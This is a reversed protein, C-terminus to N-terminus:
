SREHSEEEKWHERIFGRARYLRSEITRVSVGEESAIQDYTKEKLYFETVIHRHAPPLSSIRTHLTLKSERKILMDLPEDEDAIKAQLWDESNWEDERRREKRRKADIAKHFCIRSIWTKFGEFRYQPLSEYIQLFTEQATDEAEKADRLVSYAM